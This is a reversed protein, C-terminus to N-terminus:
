RQLGFEKPELELWTYEGFGQLATGGYAHFQLTAPGLLFPIEPDEQINWDHNHLDTGDTVAASAFPHFWRKVEILGTPTTGNGTYLSTAKAVPPNLADRRYNVPALETSGSAAGLGIDNTTTSWIIHNETGAIDEITINMALPIVLLGSPVRLAFQPQDEDYATEGFALKTGANGQQVFFVKGELKFDLISDRSLSVSDLALAAPEFNSTSVNRRGVKYNSTM